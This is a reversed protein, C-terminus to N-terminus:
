EEDRLDKLTNFLYDHYSALAATDKCTLYRGGCRERLVTNAQYFADKPVGAADLLMSGLYVIDLAEYRRMKAMPFSTKLMYYTVRSANPGAAKPVSKPIAHMAGDFSPQHDGFHMLVTPRGSSWLMSEMKALMRDSLEARQLYNGLNLNLWDDLDPPKFKGRFLPKDFPVPLQELPTM